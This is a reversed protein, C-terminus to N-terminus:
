RLLSEKKLLVYEIPDHNRTGSLGPKVFGVRGFRGASKDRLTQLTQFILSVHVKQSDSLKRSDQLCGGADSAQL